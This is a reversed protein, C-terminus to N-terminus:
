SRCANQVCWLVACLFFSFHAKHLTSNACLYPMCLKFIKNKLLCKKKRIEPLSQHIMHQCFVLFVIAAILRQFAILTVFYKWSRALKRSVLYDVSRFNMAAMKAGSTKWSRLSFKVIRIKLMWSEIFLKRLKWVVNLIECRIDHM